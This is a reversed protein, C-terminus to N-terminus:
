GVRGRLARGKIVSKRLGGIPTEVWAGVFPAVQTKNYIKVSIATEVWAGVFPAVRM